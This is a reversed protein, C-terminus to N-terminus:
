QENELLIKIAEVLKEDDFPKGVFLNAGIAIVDDKHDPGVSATIVIIPINRLSADSRIAAILAFGDMKPMRLDTVILHPIFSKMAALAEVGDFAVRAEFGELELIESLGNALHKTDDVVLIKKM